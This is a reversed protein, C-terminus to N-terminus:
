IRGHSFLVTDGRLILTGFSIGKGDVDQGISGPNFLYIPRETCVEGLVTGAPIYEEHPQHTHGSLVIDAGVKAAHALLAGYGGKVGYLHGHTMFVTHGEASFIRETPANGENCFCSFWDCNGTVDYLISRGLELRGIDRLGDGLFVVGDPVSRQRQLALEMGDTRGHSDSFILLEM